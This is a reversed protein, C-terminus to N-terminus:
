GFLRKKEGDLEENFLDIFTQNHLSPNIKSKFNMKMRIFSKEVETKLNEKIEMVEEFDVWTRQNSSKGKTITEEAIIRKFAFMTDFISTESKGSKKNPSATPNLFDERTKDGDHTSVTEIETQQLKARPKTEPTNLGKPDKQIEPEAPIFKRCSKPHGAIIPEEPHQCGTEYYTQYEQKGKHYRKHHGCKCIESTM